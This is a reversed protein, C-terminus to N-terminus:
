PRPDRFVAMQLWDDTINCDAQHMCQWLDVGSEIESGDQFTCANGDPHIGGE